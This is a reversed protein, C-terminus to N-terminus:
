VRYETNSNSLLLIIPHHLQSGLLETQYLYYNCPEAQDSGLTGDVMWGMSLCHTNCVVVVMMMMMMM